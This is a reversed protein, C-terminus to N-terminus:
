KKPEEKKPEDNIILKEQKLEKPTPQWAPKVNNRQEGDLNEINRKEM